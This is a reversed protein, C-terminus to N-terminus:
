FLIIADTKKNRMLLYFCSDTKIGSSYDMQNTFNDEDDNDQINNSRMVNEDEDKDDDDDDDNEIMPQFNEPVWDALENLYDDNNASLAEENDDEESSSSDSLINEEIDNDFNRNPIFRLLSRSVKANNSPQEPLFSKFDFSTKNANSKFRRELLQHVRESNLEINTLLCCDDYIFARSSIM